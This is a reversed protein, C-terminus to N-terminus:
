KGRYAKRAAEYDEIAQLHRGEAAIGEIEAIVADRMAAHARGEAERMLTTAKARELHRIMHFDCVAVVLGGEFHAAGAVPESCYYCTTM